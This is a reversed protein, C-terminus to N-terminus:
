IKYEIFLPKFNVDYKEKIMQINEDTNLYYINDYIFYEKFPYMLIRKNEREITQPISTKKMQEMPRQGQKNKRIAEFMILTREEYKKKIEEDITRKGQPQSAIKMEKGQEKKKIREEEIKKKIRENIRERRREEEIREEEIKKAIAMQTALQKALVENAKAQQRQCLEPNNIYIQDIKKGRSLATYKCKISMKEFDYITFNEYITEGQAKHTTSCYNLLFCKHIDEIKVDIKHIFKEGNEDPRESSLFLYEDDYNDLVFKENNIMMEGVNKRSILPLGEYLYIDQTAEDNEDKKIFASSNTRERENWYKNVEIRTKNLYCINVRTQKSTRKDSTSSFKSYDINNIDDLILSLNEDYRKKIKLDIKNYNSLYKVISSNFYNREINDEEIPPLQKDDGVLLYNVGTEEKLIYLLKWLDKNIMSIEDVIILDYKKNKITEIRNRPIKGDNNIKLFNHITQGQINLASKNTPTIKAVNLSKSIQNIVFSKGTGANGTLLCGGRLCVEKIKEYDNSDIINEYEYFNKDDEYKVDNMEDVNNIDPNHSSRYDGWENGLMLEKPNKFIACDVRRAILEGGAQKIMDYLKINSQDLIQIYIPINVDYIKKENNFGYLYYDKNIIRIFPNINAIEKTYKEITKFIHELSKNIHGRSYKMKNKGMNGSISNIMFKYLEKENNSIKLIYDIISKFLDKDQSKNAYLVKTIKFKIKEEIAKKVIASSYMNNGKFLLKDQTEIYYLGLKIEGGDWDMWDNDIDLLMWEEIPNYMISSYCKNIDYAICGSDIKKNKNYLGNFSRNKMAILLDNYVKTNPSSTKIKDKTINSIIQGISQGKYEIGMNLCIKRIKEDDEFNKFIIDKNNLTLSTINGNYMNVKPIKKNNDMIETMKEFSSEGNNLIIIEKDRENKAEEQKHIEGFVNSISNGNKKNILVKREREPIPYFHNNMIKYMLSPYNHNPKEPMYYHFCNDDEDYAYLPINFKECFIKIQSTSVGNILGFRDQFIDCLEDDKCVKKLGNRNGYKYQIYDFVCRGKKMDWNQEEYGELNYSYADKMKIENLNISSANLFENNLKKSVFYLIDISINEFRIKKVYERTSKIIDDEINKTKLNYYGNIKDIYWWYLDEKDSTELVVIFNFNIMKEKAEEDNFDKEDDLIYLFGKKDEKAIIEKIMEKLKINYDEMIDDDVFRKEKFYNNLNKMSMFEGLKDIYVKIEDVIYSHITFNFNGQYTEGLNRQKKNEKAITKVEDIYKKREENTMLKWKKNRSDILGEPYYNKLLKKTNSTIKIEKQKKKIDDIKKLIDNIFNNRDEANLRKLDKKRFDINVDPFFKNIYTKQSPTFTKRM